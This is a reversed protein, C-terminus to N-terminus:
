QTSAVSIVATKQIENMSRFRVGIGEPTIRMVDGTIWVTKEFNPPYFSLSLSRGLSFAGRSVIIFV